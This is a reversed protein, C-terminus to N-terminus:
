ASQPRTQTCAEACPFHLMVRTGRGPATVVEMRGGHLEVLKRTIPLGLGTGGAIEATVARGFPELALELDEDSMGIGDDEVFLILGDRDAQTGIEIVGDDATFKIANNLLNILMQRLARQDALFRDGDPAIGQRITRSGTENRFLTCARRIEERASLTELDLQQRESEIRSLDLIDNVLSLLHQGSASIDGAYERYRPNDIPGFMQQEMVSAFGIIANLPTRLEHSMNAIFESKARNAAEAKRRAVQAEEQATVLTTVDKGVGRCGQYTGHRDYIPDGSLNIMRDVGGPFRFLLPRDRFAKRTAWIDLLDQWERAQGASMDSLASLTITKWNRGIFQQPDLGTIQRIGDSLYTINMEADTEFYWDVAMNAFERFRDEGRRLEFEDAKRQTIDILYSDLYREGSAQDVTTWGNEMLWREAGTVPHRFRFEIRYPTGHEIRAVGADYYHPMDDPHIARLWQGLDVSGDPELVGLIQQADRGWVQARTNDHNLRAFVMDQTNLVYSRFQDMQRRSETVDILLVAVAGNKFRMRSTNLWRGNGTRVTLTESTKGMFHRVSSRVYKEEIGEADPLYQRSICDYLLDSFHGGIRPFGEFRPFFSHFTENVALVHGKADLFIIGTEDNTITSIVGATLTNSVQVDDIISGRLQYVDEGRLRVSLVLRRRDALTYELMERTGAHQRLVAIGGLPDLWAAIGPLEDFGIADLFVTSAVILEVTTDGARLLAIPRSDNRIVDVLLDSDSASQM